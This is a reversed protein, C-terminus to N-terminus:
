NDLQNNMFTFWQPEADPFEAMNLAEEIEFALEHKGEIKLQETLKLLRHPNSIKFTHKTM